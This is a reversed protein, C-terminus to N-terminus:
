LPNDCLNIKKLNFLQKIKEPIIQIANNRLNLEEIHTLEFVEPPIIPLKIDLDSLDLVKAKKERCAEIKKLIEPPTKFSHM